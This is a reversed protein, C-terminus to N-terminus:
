DAKVRIRKIGRARGSNEDVSVVVGQLEVGQSAVNFRSPMGTVFKHIVKDRERGIVSLCPGTMGLDTIYATGGELIKEDATQVHTHTGVAASVRGDLFFSLAIKESTAEAHMDVLIIKTERSLREIAQEAARFPCDLSPMFVRGQLNLVGFKVGNKEILCSGKGRALPPLNAPRLIYPNDIITLTERRKFIHDGSTIVDVGYRFLQESAKPGLGSGGSANEGNAIVLSIDERSIIEPLLKAMAERGPKGVIDGILLINMQNSLM